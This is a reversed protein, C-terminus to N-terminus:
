SAIKNLDKTKILSKDAKDVANEFVNRSMVHAQRGSPLTIERFVGGKNHVRGSGVIVYSESKRDAMDFEGMTLNRESKNFFSILMRLLQTLSFITLGM